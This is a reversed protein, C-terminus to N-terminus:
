FASRAYRQQEKRERLLADIRDREAEFEALQRGKFVKGRPLKIKMPNVRNGNVMVEYHLHPGTSLGTSGVYGIVQGQRVRAGSKVGKAFATQHNYSTRYGNAHRLITQRGYGGAWGAKVVVGNGAALIPSGRPASWDVGTHMKMVRTIPHRRMGFPSRFRGNPIPKRLLFKRASKGTDDYYDVHGTESDRFRYYRREVSGLKLEAYLIESNETASIEGDKLSLVASLSDTRSIASQFDVDAAFIRILDNANEQNLGENLAARYIADYVSPLKTQALLQRRTESGSLEPVRDPENAYAYDGNERRVVSVLHAGGRYVSLRALSNESEEDNASKEFTLRLRDEAKLGESALNSAVADSYGSAEDADVGENQLAEVIPQATIIKTFREEFYIGPYEDPVHRRLVSVNEDTITFGPNAGFAADETSFRAPDFYSISSLATAGLALGPATNRVIQEIDEGSQRRITSINSDGFPFDETKLSVEGEVDAGYILDASSAIPEAEGTESFIALPDFAPYSFERRPALALPAAVHLFPKVKVVQQDGARSVTSVMMVNDNVTEEEVDLRFGPRVGKTALIAPAAPESDKQYAQAPIALQQRGDLAAFLAGGMLFVSALGTLVSGGFWRISIQRRDLEARARRAQLPELQGLFDAEAAKNLRPM